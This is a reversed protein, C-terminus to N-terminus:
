STIAINPRTLHASPLVGDRALTEVLLDLGRRSFAKQEALAVTQPVKRVDFDSLDRELLMYLLGGRGGSEMQRTIAEFYDSDQMRADAVNLVFFRRAEAGAPVVWDANSSMLLHICNRVPFSDVGKPEILLTEETVLAKLVSEHSRDGAFFAEDAFLASCQQLHANFNGTLHKAHVVHRFHSGFLRGFEKAAVGKGVGERGRVVVAVEGPRGPNQVANAMWNLLYEYHGSDGDCINDHLHALYLECDGAIPECGVGTWLNFMRGTSEGPAYVVGDYQRRESHNIWWKGIGVERSTIGDSM